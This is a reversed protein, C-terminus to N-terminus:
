LVHSAEVIKAYYDTGTIQDRQSMAQPDEAWVVFTTAVSSAVVSLILSVVAVGIVFALLAFVFSSNPDGLNFSYAVAGGLCAVIVGGVFSGLFLAIGSLDSNVILWFGSRSGFLDWTRKSADVFSYGYIAVQTYAYINFFQVLGDICSV